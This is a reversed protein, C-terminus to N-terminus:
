RSIKGSKQKQVKKKLIAKIKITAENGLYDERIDGDKIHLKLGEVPDAYEGSVNFTKSVYAADCMFVIMRLKKGDARYVSILEEADAVGIKNMKQCVREFLPHAEKLTKDAKKKKVDLTNSKHKLSLDREDAGTIVSYYKEQWPLLYKYKVLKRPTLEKVIKIIGADELSHVARVVTARSGLGCGSQIEQQSVDCIGKEYDYHTVLVRYIEKAASSLSAWDSRRSLILPIIAANEAISDFIKKRKDIESQPLAYASENM